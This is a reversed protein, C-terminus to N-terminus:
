TGDSPGTRVEVVDADHLGITELASRVKDAEVPANFAVEIETGGVFDTGLKPGPYFLAVVTAITVLLSALACFPAVRMFNYVRNLSFFRMSLKTSLHHAGAARPARLRTVHSPGGHSGPCRVPPALTGNEAESVPWRRAPGSHRQGRGLRRGVRALSPGASS